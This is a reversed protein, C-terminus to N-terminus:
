SRNRNPLLRLQVSGLPPAAVPCHQPGTKERLIPPLPPGDRGSWRAESVTPRTLDVTNKTNDIGPAPDKRFHVTRRLWCPMASPEPDPDEVPIRKNEAPGSGVPALAGALLMTPSVAPVSHRASTPQPPLPKDSGLGDVPTPLRM